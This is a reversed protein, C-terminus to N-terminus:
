YKGYVLHTGIIKGLSVGLMHLHFIKERDKDYMSNRLTGKLKGLKIGKAVRAWLGEKTRESIFDRELAAMMSFITILVENAVNATDKPNLDLGQVILTGRGEISKSM